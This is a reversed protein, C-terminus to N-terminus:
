AGHSTFVAWLDLGIMAMAAAGKFVTAFVRGLLAGWGVRAAADMSRHELYTMSFAGAFAGLFAGPVSGLGLLFPALVVAGVLGGLLAGAMAKKSGGFRRAGWLGAVFDVAEAVAALFLLGLLVKVSIVAFDNLWAYLASAAVIIWTGPLGFIVAALGILLFLILLVLALVEWVGM